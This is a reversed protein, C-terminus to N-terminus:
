PLFCIRALAWLVMSTMDYAIPLLQLRKEAVCHLVLTAANSAAVNTSSYICVSIFTPTPSMSQMAENREAGAYAYYKTAAM